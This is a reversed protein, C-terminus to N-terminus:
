LDTVPFCGNLSNLSNLGKREFFVICDQEATEINENRVKALVEAAM